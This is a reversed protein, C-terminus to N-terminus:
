HRRAQTLRQLAAGTRDLHWLATESLAPDSERALWDALLTLDVQLSRILGILRERDVPLAPSVTLTM